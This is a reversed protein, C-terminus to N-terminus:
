LAELVTVVIPTGNCVFADRALTRTGPVSVSFAQGEVVTPLSLQCGNSSLVAKLNGGIINTLEGITDRIDDQSPPEAGVGFLRQAALSAFAPSCQLVVTGRWPGTIHVHGQLSTGSMQEDAEATHVLPLELTQTWVAECLEAITESLTDV